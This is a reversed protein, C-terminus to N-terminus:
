ADREGEIGKLGNFYSRYPGKDSMIFMNRMVDDFSDTSKSRYAIEDIYRMLIMSDEKQSMMATADMVVEGLIKNEIYNSADTMELVWVFKPYQPATYLMTSEADTSRKEKYKRSTTLQLRLVLPNDDSFQHQRADKRELITKVINYGFIKAYAATLHISKHLPIVAGTPNLVAGSTPSQEMETDPMSTRAPNYFKVLDYPTKSDDMVIYEDFLDATDVAKIGFGLDKAASSLEEVSQPGHGICVVSHQNLSLLVPIGSEVYYHILRKGDLMNDKDITIMRPYFGFHKIVTSKQAKTMGKSPLNREPIIDNVVQLIESPLVTRYEPYRTGYYQLVTWISVEACTISEADQGMFPYANVKLIHGALEIEFDTTRIYSGKIDDLRNPNLLIKGIGPVNPPKVVITGILSDSLTRESGKGYLDESDLLGGFLVLRKCNREFSTLKKSYYNYYVDRYSSDIYDKELVISLPHDLRGLITKITKSCRGLNLQDILVTDDTHDKVHIITFTEDMPCESTNMGVDLLNNKDYIKIAYFLHM